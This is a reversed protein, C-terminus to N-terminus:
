TYWKRERKLESNLVTIAANANEVIQFDFMGVNAFEAGNEFIFKFADQPKIAGAALVKYAIWPTKITKFFAAVEEPAKCWSYGQDKREPSPASWYNLHHMTKMFFDPEIGNEVCAKPVELAHCATGAILGQSKIYEIPKALYDLRKDAVLKDAIGGQIFAGAAGNDVAMKINSFDEKDPYTQAVWQIKGGRKRFEKLIRLIHEDCRLIATNIGSAECLGLIEIVKEDTFYKKMLASVYLLDRSYVFGSILNGGAILRSIELHKIKGKPVSGQLGSIDLSKSTLSSSITKGDAKRLNDEAFSTWGTKKVIGFLPVGLVPFVALNKILERRSKKGTQISVPNDIQPFKKDKRLQFKGKFFSEFSSKIGKQSKM